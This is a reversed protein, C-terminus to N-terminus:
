RCRWEGTRYDWWGGRTGPAGRASLTPIRLNKGFIRARARGALRELRPSVTAGFADAIIGEMVSLEIASQYGPPLTVSQTLLVAGLTGRTMVRVQTGDAPLGTFYLSGNPVDASYYASSLIGPNLVTQRQWWQPDTHVTIPSYNGQSSLWALGDITVPRAPLQWTGTPGITHPQLGGVISFTSFVEAVSARGDAQWDDFLLNIQDVVDQADVPKITETPAYIALGALIHKVITLVAVAM